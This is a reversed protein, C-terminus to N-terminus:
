FFKEIWKYFLYIKMLEVSGHHSDRNKLDKLMKRVMEEKVYPYKEILPSSLIRNFDRYVKKSTLIKREPTSFGQKDTRNKVLEPLIGDMSDRLINKTLGEKIKFSDGLNITCNILDHDCFPVRTEVSWRMSNKDGHDLLRPIQTYKESIISMERISRAKWHIDKVCNNKEKEFSSTNIHDMRKGWLRRTLPLPMLCSLLIKLPKWNGFLSNYKRAENSFKLLRGRKLLALFFYAYFWHYGGLIEDAGQGELIVKMRNKNALKMVKYQGYFSFSNIPEEHTYVFDDMDELIDKENFSTSFGVGDIKKIVEEQYVSEDISEGPFVLSFCKTKRSPYMHNISCVIASSDLGGSLCAGVEVDAVLREDIANLLTKKFDRVNRDEVDKRLDYYRTIKMENKNLNYTLNHGPMLRFINRFFTEKRHNRFNYFLYDFVVQKNPTREIDHQLIGKIESSFIFKSGNSCYYLPKIGVRDRSLFLTNNNKDYICFAWMGRFKKVCGEGWELYSALIVETDTGTTFKYGRQRLKNRMQRFNYIEGNYVISYNCKNMMRKKFKESSVGTDKSYFMPQHGASSVDQIALRVHGLSLHKNVSTGNGDPGRHSIERNMILAKDKDSWNFGNIGCM